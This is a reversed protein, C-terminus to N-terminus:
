HKFSNIAQVQQQPSQVFTLFASYASTLAPMPPTFSVFVHSFEASINPNRFGYGQQFELERGRPIIIKIETAHRDIAMEAIKKYLLKTLEVRSSSPPTLTDSIFGIGNGAMSLNCLGIIKGDGRNRLIVPESGQILVAIGDIGKRMYDDIKEPTFGSSEMLEFVDLRKQLIEQQAAKGSLIEIEPFDQSLRVQQLVTPIIARVRTIRENTSNNALNDSFDGNLILKGRLSEPINVFIKGGFNTKLYQSVRELEQQTTNLDVTVVIRNDHPQINITGNFLPTLIISNTSPNVTHVTPQMTPPAFLIM